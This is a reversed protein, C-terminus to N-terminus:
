PIRCVIRLGIIQVAFFEDQTLTLSKSNPNDYIVTITDNINRQLRVAFVTSAMRVIYINGSVINKKSTDALMMEGDRITPAMNDGNAVCAILDEPHVHSITRSDIVVRNDSDWVPVHCYQKSEGGLDVLHAKDAIIGIDLRARILDELSYGTEISLAALYELDPIREGTEYGAITNRQWPWKNAMDDRSSFAKKRLERLLDTFSQM